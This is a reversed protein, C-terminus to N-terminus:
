SKQQLANTETTATSTYEYTMALQLPTKYSEWTICHKNTQKKMLESLLKSINV